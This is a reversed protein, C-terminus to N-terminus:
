NDLHDWTYCCGVDFSEATSLWVLGARLKGKSPEAGADAWVTGWVQFQAQNCTGLRIEM